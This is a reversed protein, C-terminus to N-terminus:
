QQDVLNTKALPPLAVGALGMRAFREDISVM